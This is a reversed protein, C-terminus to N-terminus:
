RDEEREIVEILWTDMVQGPQVVHLNFNRLGNEINVL